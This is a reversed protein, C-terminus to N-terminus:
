NGHQEKYLPYILQESPELMGLERAMQARNPLPLRNCQRHRLWDRIQEKSPRSPPQGSDGSARNM